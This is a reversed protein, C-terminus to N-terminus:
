ALRQLWNWQPHYQYRRHRKREAQPNDQYKDVEYINWFLSARNLEVIAYGYIDTSMHQIHPNNLKAGAALLKDTHGISTAYKVVDQPHPSSISPAMLELGAMNDLNWNSREQYDLKLYSALSTHMDGTLVVFRGDSPKIEKMIETREAQYGDWADSSLYGPENSLLTIALQSLLTQNGWFKWLAGSEKIGDILWQKQTHGLMTQGVDDHGRCDIGDNPDSCPQKTRYSRSDAMFLELLDGAKFNRYIKLREHPHGAESDFTLRAPIYEVWAQQADRKLQRLAEPDNQNKTLPHDPAGLTDRDYDWYCDNCTEHDDWTMIWTHNEMAQQLAPDSRFTQYLYRYDELDVAVSENSPLTFRRVHNKFVPYQSYEYIFDGLHVIFDLDEEALRYFANYHGTTYDQCTLVAFRLQEIQDSEKPLTKCRGTRSATGRYIFRYFYREGGLLQGDLDINVTFDRSSSFENAEIEGRVAISSFNVDEAVEFYLPEGSRYQDPNIKTWLIVGSPSPDGSAISLPFTAEAPLQTNILSAFARSHNPLLTFPTILSIGLAQIFNRRKM